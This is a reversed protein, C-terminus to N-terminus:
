FSPITTFTWEYLIVLFLAEKGSNEWSKVMAEPLSWGFCMAVRLIRVTKTASFEASSAAPVSEFVSKVEKVKIKRCFFPAM